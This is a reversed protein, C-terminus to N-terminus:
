INDHKALTKKRQLLHSIGIALLLYFVLVQNALWVFIFNDIDPPFIHMMLRINLGM